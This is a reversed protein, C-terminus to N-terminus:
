KIRGSSKLKAIRSRLRESEGATKSEPMFVAKDEFIANLPRGDFDAPAPVGMIKLITPAIDLIDAGEVRFDKKIGPGTVILIANLTHDSSISGLPNEESLVDGANTASHPIYDDRLKLIIDPAENVYDGSFIEERRHIAEVIYEDTDPDKFAKIERIIRDRVKEYDEEPVIGNPQRGHLNIIIGDGISSSFFAKTAGWDFGTGGGLIIALRNFLWIPLFQKLVEPSIKMRVMSNILAKFCREVFSQKVYSMSTKEERMFGMQRLLKNVYFVKKFPAMGHDSMVVVYTDRDIKKLIEGLKDDVFRFYDAIVASYESGSGMDKLFSHEIRDTGTFIIMTLDCPHKDLLFKAAETRQRKISYSKRLLMDKPDKASMTMGIEIEYDKVAELLEGRLSKPYTFNCNLSPALMGCIMYGDVKEPPFLSPMNFIGVTKGYQNLIHWIAPSKRQLSNLMKLEYSNDKYAFFGYIGHKGPNKGTIFTTWTTSTHLPIVSKLCGHAGNKYLRALNPTINERVLHELLKIDVGDLGILLVKNKM